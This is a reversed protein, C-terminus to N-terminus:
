RINETGERLMVFDLVNGQKGCHPAFCRFANKLVSVHFPEKSKGQHFPCPGVLEDSGQKRLGELLGYHQLIEAISVRAKTEPFSVWETM